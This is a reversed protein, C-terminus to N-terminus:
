LWKKMTNRRHDKIIAIQTKFTLELILRHQRSYQLIKSYNADLSLDKEKKIKKTISTKAMLNNLRAAHVRNHSRAFNNRIYEYFNIQAANLKERM